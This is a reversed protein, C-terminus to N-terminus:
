TPPSHCAPPTSLPISVSLIIFLIGRGCFFFSIPLCPPPDSVLSPGPRLGTTGTELALDLELWLASVRYSSSLLPPLRLAPSLPSSLGCHAVDRPRPSVGCSPLGYSPPPLPLGDGFTLGTMETSLMSLLPAPPPPAVDLVLAPLSRSRHLPIPDVFETRMYREFLSASYLLRLAGLVIDRWGGLRIFDIILIPPIPM